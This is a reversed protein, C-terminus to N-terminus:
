SLERQGDSAIEGASSALEGASSAFEGCTECPVFTTTRALALGDSSGGVGGCTQVVLAEAIAEKGVSVGADLDM